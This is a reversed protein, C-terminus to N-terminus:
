RHDTCVYRVFMRDPRYEVAPANCTAAPLGYQTLKTPYQCFGEITHTTNNKPAM